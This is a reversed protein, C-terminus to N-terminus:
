VKRLIELPRTRAARAAPLYSAIASLLLAAVAAAIVEGPRISIPISKLYYATNFLTFSGMPAAGPVFSSTILSALSLVRNVIWELGAIVENINVAILLGAAIGAATGLLGTVLGAILFSFSLARPGAGVSKLIGLDLRREFLIMMISSSVNVSAVVVVLAMIFLLLAKTTNFSSLRAYEIERWTAVRADGGAAAAVQREVDGLDAFPDRVKVGILSRTSRPSLIRDALALPAYALAADLEQYGTEYIGAVVLPTLRPPGSMLEGWTTLVSVTDGAAIGLSAAMASSVMISDPRSLDAAAPHLTIYSSFGRDRSFVDSPVFRISVGAAGRASVVMATGQREPVAIVVQRVGEVAQAMEALKAAPTDSAVAIQLHYTGVELLRATIGEIMGTSVEMVVILPILSVAIGLVAGRLYRATGAKGRLMRRSIFLVFRATM